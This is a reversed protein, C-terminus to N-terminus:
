QTPRPRHVHRRLTGHHQQAHDAHGRKCLGGDLGRRADSLRRLLGSGATLASIAVRDWASMARCSFLFTRDPGAGRLTVNSRGNFRIGTSLNYTGANLKVVQGGPCSAIADTIQEASAGPSFTACVTTRSPIGGPVGAGRWDISRSSAVITQQAQVSTSLGLLVGCVLSGCSLACRRKM